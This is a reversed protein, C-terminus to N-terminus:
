PGRQPTPACCPMCLAMDVVVKVRDLHDATVGRQRFVELRAMITEPATSMGVAHGGIIQAMRIEAPTEYTPGTM